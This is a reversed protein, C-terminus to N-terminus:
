TSDVHAAVCRAQGRSRHQHYEVCDHDNVAPPDNVAPHVAEDHIHCDLLLDM